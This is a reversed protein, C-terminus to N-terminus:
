LKEKIKTISPETLYENGIKVFPVGMTEAKIMENQIAQIDDIIKFQINEKLLQHKLVQCKSCSPLSYLIIM